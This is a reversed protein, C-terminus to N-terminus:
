NVLYIELYVCFMDSSTLERKPLMILDKLINSKYKNNTFGTLGQEVRNEYTSTFLNKYYINPIM